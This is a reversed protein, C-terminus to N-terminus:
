VLKALKHFSLNEGATDVLEAGGGLSVMSRVHDAVGIPFYLGGGQELTRIGEREIPDVCVLELIM